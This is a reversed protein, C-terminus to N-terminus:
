FEIIRNAISHFLFIFQNKNNFRYRLKSNFTNQANQPSQVCILNSSFLSVSIYLIEIAEGLLHLFSCGYSCVFSFDNALNNSITLAPSWCAIIWCECIYLPLLTPLWESVVFCNQLLYLFGVFLFRLISERHLNYQQTCFSDDILWRM